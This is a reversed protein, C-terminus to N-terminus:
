FSFTAGIWFGFIFIYGRTYVDKGAGSGTGGELQEPALALGSLSLFEGGVHLNFPDKFQYGVQALLDVFLGRQWKQRNFRRLVVSNDFDQLLTRQKARNVM